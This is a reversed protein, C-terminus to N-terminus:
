DPNEFHPDWFTHQKAGRLKILEDIINLLETSPIEVKGYRKIICERRLKELQPTKTMNIGPLKTAAKKPM